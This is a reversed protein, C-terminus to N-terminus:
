RLLFVNIPVPKVSDSLETQLAARPDGNPVTAPCVDRRCAAYSGRNALTPGYPPRRIGFPPRDNGTWAPSSESDPNM